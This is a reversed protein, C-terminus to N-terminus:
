LGATRDAAAVAAMFATLRNPDLSEQPRLGSCVDVGFPRVQTVAAGVNDPTLGGALFVPTPSAAVFAAERAKTRSTLLVTTVAPPAGSAIARSDADPLIGGGSPMAGVLGLADAGAAVALRAEAVSLICCIKIRTRM